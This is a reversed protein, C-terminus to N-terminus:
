KRCDKLRAAIRDLAAYAKDPKDSEGVGIEMWFKVEAIDADEDHRALFAKTDNLEAIDKEHLTHLAGRQIIEVLKSLRKTAETDDIM